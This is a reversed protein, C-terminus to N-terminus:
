AFNSVIQISKGRQEDSNNYYIQQNTFARISQTNTTAISSLRKYYM